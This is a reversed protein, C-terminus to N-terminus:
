ARTVKRGARGLKHRETSLAKAQKGEKKGKKLKKGESTSGRKGM